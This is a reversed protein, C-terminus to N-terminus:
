ERALSRGRGPAFAETVPEGTVGAPLEVGLVYAATAATDTTHVATSLRYGRLTGPGSVVWPITMDCAAASGHNNARSGGGHDATLIVTTWWPLAALLRGVAQDAHAVRDLYGPSMWSKAHGSIDVEPLHVFMLNFGSQAEAAALAAVDDDGTGLQYLDVAGTDKFYDFKNKGVFMVSRMGAARVATFLTPVTLRGRAPLYEDWLIRHVEPPYATLMSVHSPLTNSPMITRAEWTYAGRAALAQINATESKLLADPRLGDVSVIVVQRPLPTPSPSPVPATPRSPSGGGCATLLVFLLILLCPM